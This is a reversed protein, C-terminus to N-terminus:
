LFFTPVDIDFLRKPRRLMQEIVEAAVDVADSQGIITDQLEM